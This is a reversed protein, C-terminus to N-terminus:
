PRWPFPGSSRGKSGVPIIVGTMIKAVITRANNREGNIYNHVADMCEYNVIDANVSLVLSIGQPLDIETGFGASLQMVNGPESRPKPGTGKRFIVKNIEPPPNSYGVESFFYIIGAGFEGFPDFRVPKISKEPLDILHYKVSGSLNTSVTAYEAPWEYLNSFSPHIDNASFQPLDSEGSLRYLSFYIGPEWRPTLKKNIGLNLALGPKHRFENEQITFFGYFERLLLASGFKGTIRWEGEEQYKGPNSAKTHRSPAITLFALILGAIISKGM